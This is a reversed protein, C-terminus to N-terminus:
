NGNKEGETQTLVNRALSMGMRIHKAGSPSAEGAFFLFVEDVLTEM